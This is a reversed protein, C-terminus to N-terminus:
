LTKVISHYMNPLEAKPSPWDHLNLLVLLRFLLPCNILRSIKEDDTQLPLLHM